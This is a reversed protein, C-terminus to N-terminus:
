GALASLKLWFAELSLRVNVATIRFRHETEATLQLAALLNERVFMANYETLLGAQEGLLPLGGEQVALLDRLILRLAALTDAIAGREAGAYKEGRQWLLLEDRQAILKLWGLAEELSGAGEALLELALGPSGEARAMVKGAEESGHGLGLLVAAMEEASLPALRLPMCRSIITPLLAQRAATLLFFYVVGVPEELTKLLANAAAENMLDAGDIIVARAHALKPLRALEGQLERVAEIKISPAAKGKSEPQLRYFDPHANQKMLRCSACVGCAEGDKLEHCLVAASLVEAVKGKGIGRPGTLLLAHPLRKETLFRRLKRKTDTHGQVGQWLLEM